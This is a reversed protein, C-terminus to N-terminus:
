KLLEISLIADQSREFLNAIMEMLVDNVNVIQLIYALRKVWKDKKLLALTYRNFPTKSSQSVAEGAAHIFKDNYLSFLSTFSFLAVSAIDAHAFRGPLFFSLSRM